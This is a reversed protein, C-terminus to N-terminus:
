NSSQSAFFIWIDARNTILYWRTECKLPMGFILRRVTSFPTNWEDDAGDFPAESNAYHINSSENSSKQVMLMQDGAGYHIRHSGNKGWIFTGNYYIRMWLFPCGSSLSRSLSRVFCKWKKWNVHSLVSTRKSRRFLKLVNKIASPRKFLRLLISHSCSFRRKARLGSGNTNSWCSAFFLEKQDELYNEFM